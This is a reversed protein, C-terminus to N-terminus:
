DEKGYLEEFMKLLKLSTKFHANILSTIDDSLNGGDNISFACYDFTIRVINRNNLRQLFEFTVNDNIIVKELIIEDSLDDELGLKDIMTEFLHNTEKDTVEYEFKYLAM